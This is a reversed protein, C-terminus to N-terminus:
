RLLLHPALSSELMTIEVELQKRYAPLRLWYRRVFWTAYVSVGAGILVPTARLIRLATVSIQPPPLGSISDIRLYFLLSIYATSIMLTIAYVILLMFGGLPVLMQHLRITQLRDLERRLKDIRRLTRKESTLAWWRAVRHAALGAMLAAVPAMLVLAIVVLIINLGM